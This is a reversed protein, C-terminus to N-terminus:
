AITLALLALATFLRPRLLTRRINEVDGFRQLAEARAESESMGAAMLERTAMELHFEIERDIDNVLDGEGGSECIRAVGFDRRRPGTQRRRDISLAESQPRDREAEM